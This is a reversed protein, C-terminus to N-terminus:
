VKGNGSDQQTRPTVEALRTVRTASTSASTTRIVSSPPQVVAGFHISGSITDMSSNTVSKSVNHLGLMFRMAFFAFVLAEKFKIVDDSVEAFEILGGEDNINLKLREVLFAIFAGGGTILLGGKINRFDNTIVTAIQQAIHEVSTRM